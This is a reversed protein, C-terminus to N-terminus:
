LFAGLFESLELEKLARSVILKYVHSHELLASPSHESVSQGPPLKTKRNKSSKKWAVLNEEWTFYIEPKGLLRRFLNMRQTFNVVNRKKRKVETFKFVVKQNSQTLFIYKLVPQEHRVIIKVKNLWDCPQNTVIKEGFNPIKPLQPSRSM